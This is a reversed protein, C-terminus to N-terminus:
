KLISRLSNNLKIVSYGMGYYSKEGPTLSKRRRKAYEKAEEKDDFTAVVVGKGPILKRSGGGISGGKEIVAYEKDININEQLLLNEALYKKLDFDSM